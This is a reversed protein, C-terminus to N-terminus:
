PSHTTQELFMEEIKLTYNQLKKNNSNSTHNRNIKDQCKVICIALETLIGEREHSLLWLAKNTNNLQVFNSYNSCIDKYLETRETAYNSCHTLIYRM